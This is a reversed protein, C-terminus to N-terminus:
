MSNKHSTSLPQQATVGHELISAHQSQFLEQEMECGTESQQLVIVAAPKKRLANLLVSNSRHKKEACKEGMVRFVSLEKEQQKDVTCARSVSNFSINYREGHQVLTKLKILKQDAKECANCMPKDMITNSVDGDYDNAEKLLELIINWHSAKGSAIITVSFYCGNKRPETDQMQYLLHLVMTWFMSEDCASIKTNFVTQEKFMSCQDTKKFLTVTMLSNPEKVCDSIATSHCVTDYAIRMKEGGVLVEDLLDLKGMFVGSSEM